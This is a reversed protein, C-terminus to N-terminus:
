QCMECPITCCTAATFALDWSFAHDLCKLRALM